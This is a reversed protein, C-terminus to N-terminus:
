RRRRLLLCLGAVGGFAANPAPITPTFGVEASTYLVFQNNVGGLTFELEGLYGRIEDGVPINLGDHGVLAYPQNLGALNPTPLSGTSLTPIPEFTSITAVYGQWRNLSDEGAVLPTGTSDDSFAAILDEADGGTTIAIPYAYLFTVEVPVGPTGGTPVEAIFDTLRLVDGGVIGLSAASGPVLEVTGQFDYGSATTWGSTVNNFEVIGLTPNLDNATNDDIVLGDVTVTAFQAHASGITLLSLIACTITLRTWLMM